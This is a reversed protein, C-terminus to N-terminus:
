IRACLRLANGFADLTNTEITDGSKVHAVPAASGYLYKVDNITAHYKVLNPTQARAALSCAFLVFSAKM